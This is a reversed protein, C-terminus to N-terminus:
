SAPAAQERAQQLEHAHDLRERFLSAWKRFLRKTNALNTVPNSEYAGGPSDIRRRDAARALLEGTQSDRFEAYLTVEGADRVYVDDRASGEPATLDINILAARVALVDPGPHSVVNYGGKAQLEKTFEELFYRRLDDLRHEPLKRSGKKFAFQVPLIMLQDYRGLNAGPKVAAFGVRANKVELLGEETLLGDTLQCQERIQFIKEEIDRNYDGIAVRARDKTDGTLLAAVASVPVVSRVGAGIQTAV